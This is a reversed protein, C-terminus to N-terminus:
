KISESILQTSFTGTYRYLQGFLPHTLRFDMQFHESDIGNEVITTHGLLLWEPIPINLKWLRFVFYEGQYYLKDDKVSVSMCLGLLPNVFEFLQNDGAYEWRSKFYVKKGDSFTLTRYWYQKQGQMTKKVVTPISQGKRNLLAGFLSLLNLFQQMWGPYEVTLYGIDRNNNEQYHAQLVSPLSYWQEGLAQKMINM